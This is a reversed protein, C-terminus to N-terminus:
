ANTRAHHSFSRLGERNQATKGGTCYFLKLDSLRKTMLLNSAGIRRGSPAILLRYFASAEDRSIPSEANQGM